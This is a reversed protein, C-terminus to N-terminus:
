PLVTVCINSLLGSSLLLPLGLSVHSSFSSYSTHSIYNILHCCLVNLLSFPADKILSDFNESPWLALSDTLLTELLPKEMATFLLYVYKTHCGTVRGYVYWCRIATTGSGCCDPVCTMYGCMIHYVVWEIQIELLEPPDLFRGSSPLSSSFCTPALYM